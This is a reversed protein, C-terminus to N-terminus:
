TSNSFITKVQGLSPIPPASSGAQNAAAAASQADHPHDIFLSFFNSVFTTHISFLLLKKKKIDFFLKKINNIYTTNFWLIQFNLLLFDLTLPKARSLSESLFVKPM